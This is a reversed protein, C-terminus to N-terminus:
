FDDVEQEPSYRPLSAGSNSFGTSSSRKPMHGEADDSKVGARKMSSIICQVVGGVPDETSYHTPSSRGDHRYTTIGNLM